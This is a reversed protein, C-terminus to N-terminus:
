FYDSVAGENKLELIGHGLGNFYNFPDCLSLFRAQYSQNHFERSKRGSSASTASIMPSQVSYVKDTNMM